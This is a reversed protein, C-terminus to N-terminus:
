TECLLTIPFKKLGFAKLHGELDVFIDEFGAIDSAYHISGSKKFSDKIKLTGMKKFIIKLTFLTKIASPWSFWDLSFIRIM